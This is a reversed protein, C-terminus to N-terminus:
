KSITRVSVFYQSSCCVYNIHLQISVRKIDNIIHSLISEVDVTENEYAKSVSIPYLTRCDLFKLAFVNLSINRTGNEKLGDNWLVIEKSFDSNDRNHGEQHLAIIDCIQSFYQEFM